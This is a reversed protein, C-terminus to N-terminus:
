KNGGPDHTAVHLRTPNFRPQSLRLNDPLISITTALTQYIQYGSCLRIASIWVIMELFM